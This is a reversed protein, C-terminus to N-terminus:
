GRRDKGDWGSERKLEWEFHSDLKATLTDLKRDMGEVAEEMHGRHMEFETRPLLKNNIHDWLATRDKQLSSFAERAFYGFGALLVGIILDLLEHTTM